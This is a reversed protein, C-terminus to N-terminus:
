RGPVRIRVSGAPTVALYTGPTVSAGVAVLVDFATGPPEDPPPATLSALLEVKLRRRRGLADRAWATYFVTGPEVRWRRPRWLGRILRARCGPGMEVRVDPRLWRRRLFLGLVIVSGLILVADVALPELSM